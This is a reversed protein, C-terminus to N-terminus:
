QRRELFLLVLAIIIAVFGGYIFNGLITTAIGIGLMIGTAFLMAKDEDHRNLFIQERTLRSANPRRAPRKTKRKAM